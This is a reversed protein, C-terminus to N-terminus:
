GTFILVIYIKASFIVSGSLEKDHCKSTVLTIFKYICISSIHFYKFKEFYKMSLKSIMFSNDLTHLELKMKSSTSSLTEFIGKGGGGGEGEISNTKMVDYTTEHVRIPRFFFSKFCIKM